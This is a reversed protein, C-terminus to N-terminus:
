RSAEAAARAGLLAERLPGPEAEASIALGADYIKLAEDPRGQAAHIAGLTLYAPLSKPELRIAAELTSLAARADGSLYECLGKDALLAGDGPFSPALADLLAVARRYDGLAQYALAVRRRLRGDPDGLAALEQARSLSERASAPNGALSQLEAREVWLGADSSGHKLLENLIEGAPGFEKLERYLRLVRLSDPGDLALARARALSALSAVREGAGAQFEAVALLLEADAPSEALLPALAEAARRPAGANRFLRLARRRQEGEPRLRAARELSSLAESAEGERAELEARQLWLEADSPEERLLPKLAALAGRRDGLKSHLDYARRRLEATLPLRGARSLAELAADAKGTEAALEARELWLGTDTPRLRSLGELAAAAGDFDTLQRYLSYARRRQEFSQAPGREARALSARAADSAGLLAHLEALELEVVGGGFDTGRLPALSSLAKEYEKLSRYLAAVRRRAGPDLELERARALLALAASRAGLEARLEALEIRLGADGPALRLLPELAAASRRPEKLARYLSAVRRRQHLDPGATEAAALSSLAAARSPARAEREARELWFEASREVEMRMLAKAWAAKLAPRAIGAARRAAVWPGGGAAPFSALEVTPLAFAFGRMIKERQAIFPDQSADEAARLLWLVRGDAFEEQARREEDATRTFGHIAACRVGGGSQVLLPGILSDDCLFRTGPFRRQYDGAWAALANLGRPAGAVPAASARFRSLFALQGLAAVLVVTALALRAGRAPRPGFAGRALSLAALAPLGAILPFHHWKVPFPAAFAIALVGAILLAWFGAERLEERRKRRLLVALAAAAILPAAAAAWPSPPFGGSYHFPATGTLAGAAMEARVAIWHPLRSLHEALPEPRAGSYFFTYLPYRINFYVIPWAGLLVGAFLAAAERVGPAGRRDMRWLIAAAPVAALLLWLFHAKDWVGAGLAAGAALPWALSGPRRLAEGALWIAASRLLLGLAVPGSDYCTALALGPSTAVLPAILAAWSPRHRRAAFLMLFFVSLAGLALTAGRLTTTSAGFSKFAGALVMTKLSGQYTDKMWWPWPWAAADEAPSPSLWDLAMQGHVAEDHQLDTLGILPAGVAFFALATAAALGLSLSADKTM